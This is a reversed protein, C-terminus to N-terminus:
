ADDANSSDDQTSRARPAGMPLEYTEGGKTITYIKRNKIVKINLDFPAAVGKDILFKSAFPSLIFLAEGVRLTRRPTARGSNGRVFREGLAVVRHPGCALSNLPLALEVGHRPATPDVSVNPLAQLYEKYAPFSVDCLEIANKRTVAIASVVAATHVDVAAQPIGRMHPPMFLEVPTTDFPPALAEVAALYGADRFMRHLTGADIHGSQDDPVKQHEVSARVWSLVARTKEIETGGLLYCYRVGEVQIFKVNACIGFYKKQIAKITYLLKENTKLNVNTRLRFTATQSNALLWSAGPIGDCTPTGSAL